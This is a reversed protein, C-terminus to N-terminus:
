QGNKGGGGDRTRRLPSATLGQYIPIKPDGGLCREEETKKKKRKGRGRQEPRGASVGRESKQERLEDKPGIGGGPGKGDSKSNTGGLNRGEWKSLLITGTRGKGKVLGHGRDLANKPLKKVQFDAPKTKRKQKKEWAGREVKRCPRQNKKKKNESSPAGTGYIGGRM